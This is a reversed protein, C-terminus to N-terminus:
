WVIMLVLQIAVFSVLVGREFNRHQVFDRLNM